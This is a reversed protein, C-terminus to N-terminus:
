RALEIHCTASFSLPIPLNPIIDIEGSYTLDMYGSIDSVVKGTGEVDVPISTGSFDISITQESVLINGANDIEGSVQSGNMDIYLTNAADGEIDITEPMLENLSIPEGFGLDIEECDPVIGWNGLAIDYADMCSGDDCTATIDYNFALPDTCGIIYGCSGDDINALIDYNCATSDTCGVCSIFDCLGNDTNSLPDYNCALPDTCGYITPTEEIVVEDEKKCSSIVM